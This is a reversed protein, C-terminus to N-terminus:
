IITNCKRELMRWNHSAKLKDRNALQAEYQLKFFLNMKGNEDEQSM